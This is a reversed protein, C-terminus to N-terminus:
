RRWWMALCFGSILHWIGWWATIMAMGGIGDFFNFILILGLGSNQIGTEISIARADPDRLGFLRAWWFGLAFALTNHVLVIWFVKGVHDVINQYNGIMAFIVFSFFIVISLIRIPKKIKSSFNEYYHNIIMGISLPIFILLVITKVMDQPDVAIIESLKGANPLFTAWFTFALPTIFVAAITSISTLMVSLAANAGALHVAFNSVNGGPCAAILIMGLAISAPPDFFRALIITLIPLLLLQSFLGIFALKPHKIIHKFDAVKIDLAVGFMLIALCINLLILQSPDFNIRVADISDMFDLISM